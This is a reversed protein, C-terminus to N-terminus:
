KYQQAEFIFASLDKSDEVVVMSLLKLRLLCSDHAVADNFDSTWCINLKMDDHLKYDTIDSLYTGVSEFYCIDDM